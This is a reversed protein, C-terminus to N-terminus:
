QILVGANKLLAHIGDRLGNYRGSTAEKKLFFICLFGPRLSKEVESIVSYGQRRLLNRGVASKEVKKSVVFSFKSPLSSDKESKKVRLTGIEAHFSKGQSAVQFLKRPIRKNKSLM